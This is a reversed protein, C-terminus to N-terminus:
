CVMLPGNLTPIEGILLRKLRSTHSIWKPEFHSECIFFSKSSVNVFDAWKQATVPEKPVLFLSIGDGYRIGCNIVACKKSM